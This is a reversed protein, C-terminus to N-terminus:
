TLAQETVPEVHWEVGYSGLWDLFDAPVYAEAPALVGPRAGQTVLRRAGEVAIVATAGYADTSWVAGQAQRGASDVAHATMM